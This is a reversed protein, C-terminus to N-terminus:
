MWVINQLDATQYKNQGYRCRGEKRERLVQFYINLVFRCRGFRGIYSYMIYALICEQFKNNMDTNTFDSKM